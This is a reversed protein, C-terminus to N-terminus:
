KQDPEFPRSVQITDSPAQDTMPIYIPPREIPNHVLAHDIADYITEILKVDFNEDILEPFKEKIKDLDKENEKPVLALKVGARKAGQLKATLGGIKTIRGTLDIEGTMAVDNRIPIQLLQSIIATTIAGGASPGDKPTAGAPCHIHLGEPAGGRIRDKAEQPIVNWAVSRAVSMSEQMVEGQSGTLTLDLHKNGLTKYVQVITIGGIGAGTAYLGNVTGVMPEEPIKRFEIRPQERFKIVDETTIEHPFTISSPDTLRQLNIQRVISFLNEKLKRVGAEFTYQTVIFKIVEDSITLAGEEFGCTKLIDPMLYKGAIVLKEKAALPDIKIVHMRDKFVPDIMEPYNYSFIFLAKSLNFPIGQFYKDQHEENQSFDTLSTLIGILERGKESQSVKDVEDIYIVPDMCKAERLIDIIRGWNSGIYTYNHGVLMASDTQGGMSIFAFPRGLAKAIGERAFTTKGTGPPGELALCEGKSNGNSIRQALWILTERKPEEMGFVAKDLDARVRDIYAKIEEPASDKNVPEPTFVGFPIDLLGDLYKKAKSAESGHGELEKVKEMAKSKATDSMQSLAIRDEYPVDSEHLKKLKEKMENLEDIAMDLKKQLSFHMTNRIIERFQPVDRFIMMYLHLAMRNDDQMLMLSFLRLQQGMPAMAFMMLFAPHLRGGLGSITRYENEMEEVVKEKSNIVLDRLPYAKLYNEKFDSPIGVVDQIAKQVEEYKPRIIDLTQGQNIPDNHFHGKMILIKQEGEDNIYPIKIEAGQVIDMGSDISFNSISSFTPSDLDDDGEEFYKMIDSFDYKENTFPNWEDEEQEAGPETLKYGSPSFVLNAEELFKVHEESFKEKWNEGVILKLGKKISNFGIDESVDLLIDYCEDVEGMFKDRLANIQDNHMPMVAEERVRDRVDRVLESLNELRDLSRIQVEQNIFQRKWYMEVKTAVKVIQKFLFSTKDLVTTVLRELKMEAFRRRATYGRFAAQITEAAHALEDNAVIEGSNQLVIDGSDNLTPDNTKNKDDIHM